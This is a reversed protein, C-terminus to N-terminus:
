EVTLDTGDLYRQLILAAAIKDVYLFRDERPTGAEDMIEEAEVTTLREDTYVVPLGFRKKLLNGFDRTEKVRFGEEASMHLPLGLVIREPQYEEILEGIRRLTGRLKHAKDRRIIELGQATLGLPDSVAVGCTRSGYDLGLIRPKQSLDKEARSGPNM